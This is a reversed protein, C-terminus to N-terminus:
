PRLLSSSKELMSRELVIMIVLLFYRLAFLINVNTPIFIRNRVLHLRTDLNDSHTLAIATMFEPFDIKGNKSKDIM